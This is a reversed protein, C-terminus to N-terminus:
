RAGPTTLEKHLWAKAFEWDRRVTIASVSLVHKVQLSSASTEVVEARAIPALTFLLIFFTRM